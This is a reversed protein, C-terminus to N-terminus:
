SKPCFLRSDRKSLQKASRVIRGVHVGGMVTNALLMGLVGESHLNSTRSFLMGLVGESQFRRTDATLPGAAKSPSETERLSEQM